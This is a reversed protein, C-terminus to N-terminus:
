RKHYGTRLASDNKSERRNWVADVSTPAKDKVPSAMTRSRYAGQQIDSKWDKFEKKNGEYVEGM